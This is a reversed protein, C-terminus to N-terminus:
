HRVVAQLFSHALQLKGITAFILTQKTTDKSAVVFGKLHLAVVKLMDEVFKKASEISHNVSGIEDRAHQM